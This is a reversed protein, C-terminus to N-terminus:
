AGLAAPDVLRLSISGPIPVRWGVSVDGAFRASVDGVATVYELSRLFRVLTGALDNEAGGDPLDVGGPSWPSLYDRVAREVSGRDAHSAIALTARVEVPAYAPDVVEIRAFSSAASQLCSRIRERLPAPLRPEGTRAAATAAAPVVAVTFGGDGAIVRVRAVQPFSDLVIREADAALVARGKHGLRAATRDSRGAETEADRGGFSAFPQGVGAVGPIASATIMGPALPEIRSCEEALRRTAVLADLAVGTILPLSEGAGPVEIRLWAEDGTRRAPKLTVIGHDSLGQTGDDIEDTELNRWGEASEIQWRPPVSPGSGAEAGFLVSLPKDSPWNGIRLDYCPWRPLPPLLPTGMGAGARAAPRGELVHLLTLGAGRGPAGLEFWAEYDLRLGALTPRWPANPMLGEISGTLLLEDEYAEEEPEFPDQRAELLNLLRGIKVALAQAVKLPAKLLKLIIALLRSWLRSRRRQRDIDATAEAARYAVNIPYLSEGFGYSPGILTLRVGAAGPAESVGEPTEGAEAKEIAFSSTEPLPGAPEAGPFLPFEAAGRSEALPASLRVRFLDNRFLPGPGDCLRRTPGVVYELYHGYLGLPDTPLDAWILTLTVTDLGGRALAPHDLQLWSGRGAVAGFAPVGAVASVPGSSTMLALGGLDGVAVEVRLRQVTARALIPLPQIEAGAANQILLLRIAPADPLGAEESACRVLPQAAAPLDLRFVAEARDGELTSGLTEFDPADIWGALSSFGIRFHAKLLAPFEGPSLQEPWDVQSLSFRLTIRRHGSAAALEDGAVIIGPRAAVFRTEGVHSMGASLDSVLAPRAFALRTARTAPPDPQWRVLDVVKAGTLQLASEAAFRIPLGDGDHGADFLEGAPIAPAARGAVVSPTFSLYLRDPEARRRPSGIVTGHYYDRMREPVTNLREQARAFTRIFAFLLGVHPQHDPRELCEEILDRAGAVLAEIGALFGHAAEEFQDAIEDLWYRQEDWELPSSGASFHEVRWRSHFGGVLVFITTQFRGARQAEGLLFLMEHLRPALTGSLAGDILARPARANEGEGLRDASGIWRDAEAALRLVQDVLSELQREREEPESDLRLRRLGRRIAAARTGVDLTAILSLLVTGDATLLSEWRGAERGRADFFPLSRSFHTAEGLIDGFGREDIRAYGPALAPLFPEDRRAWRTVILPESV